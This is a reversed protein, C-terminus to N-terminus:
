TNGAESLVECLKEHNVRRGALCLYSFRSNEFSKVGSYEYLASAFTFDDICESKLIRYDEEICFGEGTVTNYSIVSPASLFVLRANKMNLSFEDAVIIEGPSSSSEYENIKVSMGWEEMVVSSAYFYERIKETYVSVYRVLPALNKLLNICVGNRDYLSLSLKKGKGSEELLSLATRLMINTGLSRPEARRLSICDPFRIDDACVIQRERRELSASIKAWSMHNERVKLRLFPAGAKVQVYERQPLPPKIKEQIKSFIGEKEPLIELCTFM